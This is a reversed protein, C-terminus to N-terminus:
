LSFEGRELEPISLPVADRYESVPIKDIERFRVPELFINQRRLRKVLSARCARLEQTDAHSLKRDTIAVLRVRQPELRTGAVITLRLQEVEERWGDTSTRVCSRLENVLLGSLADHLAPRHAKTGISEALAFEDSESAFGQVPSVGVLFAKSIPISIRLDVAWDVGSEPPKTLYIWSVFKRRKVDALQGPKLCNGLDRVPCVQVFPHQSGPGKAAIDCTQSVVAYYGTDSLPYPNPAAGTPNADAHVGTVVDTQGAPAVWAGVEARLLHGQKWRDLAQQVQPNWPDPLLEDLSM